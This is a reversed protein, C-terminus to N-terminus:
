ESECLESCWPDGVVLYGIASEFERGRGGYCDPDLGLLSEVGHGADLVVQAAVGGSLGRHRSGCAFLDNSTFSNCCWAVGITLAENFIVQAFV